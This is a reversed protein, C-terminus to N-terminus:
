SKPRQYMSQCLHEGCYSPTYSEPLRILLDIHMDAPKTENPLLFTCSQMLGERPKFIISDKEDVVILSKLNLYATSRNKVIATFWQLRAALIQRTAFNDHWIKHFWSVLEQDEHEEIETDDYRSM